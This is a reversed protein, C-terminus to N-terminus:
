FSILCMVRSNLEDLFILVKARKAFSPTTLRDRDVIRLQKSYVCCIMPQFM